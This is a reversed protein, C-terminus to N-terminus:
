KEGFKALIEETHRKIFPEANSPYEKRYKAINSMFKPGYNNRPLPLYHDFISSGIKSYSDYEVINVNLSSELLLIAEDPKGKRLDRLIGVTNSGNAAANEEKNWNLGAYFGFYGGAYFSGAVLFIVILVLIFNKKWAKM